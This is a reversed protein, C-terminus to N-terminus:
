FESAKKNQKWFVTKESKVRCLHHNYQVIPLMNNSSVNYLFHHWIIICTMSNSVCKSISLGDPQIEKFLSTPFIQIHKLGSLKKSCYSINWMNFVGNWLLPIFTKSPQNFCSSVPYICDDHQSDSGRQLSCAMSQAHPFCAWQEAFCEHVVWNFHLGWCSSCCRWHGAWQDTQPAQRLCHQASILAIYHMESISKLYKLGVSLDNAYPGDRSWKQPMQLLKLDWSWFFECIKPTDAIRITNCCSYKWIGSTHIATHQRQTGTPLPNNNKMVNRINSDSTHSPSKTQHM